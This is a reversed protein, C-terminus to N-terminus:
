RHVGEMALYHDLEALVRELGAANGAEARVTLAAQTNSARLLWWGDATRVRVGDTDNVEAGDRALAAAVRDVIAFKDSESIVIRTEPIDVMAPMAGRLETMSRGALHVSRILRIAAYHADDFGYWEGAFFMHGSMEGGLPAATEAMKTKMLSHGTKWMVPQGGLTTIHDFLAQSAKVDAVIPAGPHEALAPGALLMLIQDGWIVRGLGDIAGIRDGDGDFAFGFDLSKEAVLRKLADLNSEVTPDPHHHPFHGDVDTFLTHHEGPLRQVLKEIVPGAAGSGCDWGIRYAGGAYGAMLRDVYADLIAHESVRGQGTTWDRTRAMRALDQVDEGFFPRHHLVMKFGNDDRPNHSGTVQVAGDVGLTAEAFYVMPTPGLGLRVVDVGSECLGEVLAAELAPSSLRGDRGVAVRSGGARRVRSAFGRGVAYAASEDLTEPVTGRVDYERCASPHIAAAREAVM